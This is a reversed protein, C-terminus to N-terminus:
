GGLRRRRRRRRRYQHFLPPAAGMGAGARGEAARGVEELGAEARVAAWMAADKGEEV